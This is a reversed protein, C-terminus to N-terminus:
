LKTWHVDISAHSSHSAINLYARLMIFFCLLIKFMIFGCNLHMYYILHLNFYILKPVSIPVSKTWTHNSFLPPHVGDTSIQDTCNESNKAHYKNMKLRTKKM